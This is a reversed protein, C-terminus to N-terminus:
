SWKMYAQVSLGKWFVDCNYTIMQGSLVSVSENTVCHNGRNPYPVRNKHIMQM